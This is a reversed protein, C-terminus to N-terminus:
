EADHATGIHIPAPNNTVKNIVWSLSATVIIVAIATKVHGAIPKREDAQKRITRLHEFDKRMEQPEDVRFGYKQLTEPTVSEDRLRKIDDNIHKLASEMRSTSSTQTEIARTQRSVHEALVKVTGSLEGVLLHLNDKEDPM